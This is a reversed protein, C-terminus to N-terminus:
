VNALVLNKYIKKCNEFHWRRMVNGSGTHGCVNCTDFRNTLKILTEQAHKKGAFTGQNRKKMTISLARRASERQKETRPKNNGPNNHTGGIARNLWRDNNLVNLKTLVKQEYMHAKNKDLFTKRVQIIDPEGHERIFEHVHKSSTKYPNWLDSPCCGKRYRVGYYWKDLHSWGILYTYPQYIIM